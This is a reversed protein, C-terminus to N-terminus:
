RHKMALWRNIEDEVSFDAESLTRSNKHRAVLGVAKSLFPRSCSLFGAQGCAGSCKRQVSM